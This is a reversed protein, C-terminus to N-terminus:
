DDVTTSRAQTELARCSMEVTDKMQKEQQLQQLSFASLAAASRAKEENLQQDRQLTFASLAADSRAKEENLQHDGELCIMASRAREHAITLQNEFDNRSREKALAQATQLHAERERALAQLAERERVLADHAALGLSQRTRAHAEEERDLADRGAQKM